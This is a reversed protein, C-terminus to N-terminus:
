IPFAGLGALAIALWAGLIMSPGYPLEARMAERIGGETAGATKRRARMRAIASAALVVLSLLGGILATILVSWGLTGWSIYSTFVGLQVSLKVDGYGFGRGGAVLFLLNTGLFYIAGGLLARLFDDGSGDILSTVGLAAIVFLSGRLNLRDVIRLSDIDTIGLALTLTLFGLYAVLAWRAGVTNAFAIAFVVSVLVVIIERGVRRGCKACRARAWGRVEGCGPCTGVMPRLAQDALAQAALDHAVLAGLFGFAGALVNTV